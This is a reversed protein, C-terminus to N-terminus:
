FDSYEYFYFFFLLFNFFLLIFPLVAPLVIPLVFLAFLHLFFGYFAVLFNGFAVGSCGVLSACLGTVWQFGVVFSGSGLPEM